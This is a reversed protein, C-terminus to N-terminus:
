IEGHSPVDPEVAAGGQGRGHVMGACACALPAQRPRAAWTAVARFLARLTVKRRARAAVIVQKNKGRTEAAAPPEDRLPLVGAGALLRRDLLRRVAALEYSDYLSSGTDWVARGSNGGRRTGTGSSEARGLDDHRKRSM